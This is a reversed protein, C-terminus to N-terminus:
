NKVEPQGSLGNKFNDWDDIVADIASGVAAVILAVALAGLGGNIERQESAPIERFRNISLETKM